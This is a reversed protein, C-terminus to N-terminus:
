NTGRLKDEIPNFYAFKRHPAKLHHSMHHYKLKKLYKTLFTNYHMSYHSTEIYLHGLILGTTFLSECDLPILNLFNLFNFFLYTPIVAIAAIWPHIVIRRYDYPFMHHYGHGNFHWFRWIGSFDEIPKQHIIKHFYHSYNFWTIIGSLFYFLNSMSIIPTTWYFLFMFSLISLWTTYALLLSSHTIKELLYNDYIKLNSYDFKDNEKVVIKNMIKEYEKPELNKVQNYICKSTNIM